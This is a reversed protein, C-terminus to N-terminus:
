LFFSLKRNFIMKEKTFTINFCQPKLSIINVKLVRAAFIALVFDLYLQTAIYSAALYVVVANGNNVIHM